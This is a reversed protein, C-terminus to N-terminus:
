KTGGNYKKLIECGKSVMEQQMELTGKEVILAEVMVLTEGKCDRDEEACKLQAKLYKNENELDAVYNYEVPKNETSPQSCANCPTAATGCNQNCM